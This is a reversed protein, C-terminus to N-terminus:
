LSLKKKKGEPKLISWVIEAETKKKQVKEKKVAANDVGMKKRASWM